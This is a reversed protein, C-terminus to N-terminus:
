GGILPQIAKINLAALAIERQKNAEIDALAQARQAALNANQIDYSQGQQALDQQGQYQDRQYDGVFRQLAGAAVGSRIGPGSLGRRGLSANLKPVARGFSRTQDILQRSGRQQGLTRAYDNTARQATYGSDIQRRQAQFQSTDIAM